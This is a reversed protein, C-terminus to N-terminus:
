VHLSLTHSSRADHGGSGNETGGPPRTKSGSKPTSPAAFRLNNASEASVQNMVRNARAYPSSPVGFASVLGWCTVCFYLKVWLANRKPPPQGGIFKYNFTDGNQRLVNARASASGKRELVKFHYSPRPSSCCTQLLLVLATGSPCRRARAFSASLCQARAPAIENKVWEGADRRGRRQERGCRHRRRHNQLQSAPQQSSAAQSGPQRRRSHAAQQTGDKRRRRRTSAGRSVADPHLHPCACHREALKARARRHGEPM